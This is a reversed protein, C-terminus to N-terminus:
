STIETTKNASKESELRWRSLPCSWSSAGSQKNPSPVKRVSHSVNRKAKGIRNTKTKRLPSVSCLVFCFVFCFYSTLSKHFPLLVLQLALSVLFCCIFFPM